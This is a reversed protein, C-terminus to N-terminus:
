ERDVSSEQFMHAHPHIHQHGWRISHMCCRNFAKNQWSWHFQSYSQGFNEPEPSQGSKNLASAKIQRQPDSRRLHWPRWCIEIKVNAWLSVISMSFDHQYRLWKTSVPTLYSHATVPLAQIHRCCHYHHCPVRCLIWWYVFSSPVWAGGPSSFCMTCKLWPALRIWIILSSLFGSLTLLVTFFACYTHLCM